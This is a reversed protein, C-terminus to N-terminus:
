ENIFTNKKVKNFYIQSYQSLKRNKERNIAKQLEEELNIDSKEDKIENIYLILFAGPITIPKTFQNVNISAIESKIIDSMETERLWGIAGNKKKSDGVSFLLVTKEFGNINISKKIEEYKEKIEDNNKAKFILESILYNKFYENEEIESEIKKKIQDQDIAIKESYKQFIIQNWLTEVKIKKKIYEYNTKYEELYNKFDQLNGFGLRNFTMKIVSELYEQNIELDSFNKLIENEKISDNILSNKAIQLIQEKKLDEINKNTAILYRYENKIDINTIIIKEIRSIIKIELAVLNSIQFFFLLIFIKLKYM